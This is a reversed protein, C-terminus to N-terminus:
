PFRKYNKQYLQLVHPPVNGFDTLWRHELLQVYHGIMHEIRAGQASADDGHDLPACIELTLRGNEDSRIFVPLSAAGTNLSLFAFSQAFPRSKRLFDHISVSTGRMGDGTSHVIGGKLLRDRCQALVHLDFAGKLQIHDIAGDLQPELNAQENIPSVHALDWGLRALVTPILRAPGFHSSILQVGLGARHATELHELGIITLRTDFDRRPMTRFASVLYFSMIKDAIIRRASMQNVTSIDIIQPDFDFTKQPEFIKFYDHPEGDVVAHIRAILDDFPTDVLAEFNARSVGLFQLINSLNPSPNRAAGTTGFQSGSEDTM